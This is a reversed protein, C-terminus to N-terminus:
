GKVSISGNKANYIVGTLLMMLNLQFNFYGQTNDTTYTIFSYLILAFCVLVARSNIINYSLFRKPVVILWYWSWLIFGWFGIEIFMKMLDNHLAKISSMNYLDTVTIYDFQKTVFGVGRGFFLPSFSCFKRFYDYIINRGSMSIGYSTLLDTLEDSVSFAVFIVSVIVALLGTIKIIKKKTRVALHVTFILYIIVIALAAIGIRKFGLLFCVISLIMVFTNKKNNTFFLFCIIYLGLSFIVEHLEVYQNNIVHLAASGDPRFLAEIFLTGNRMLGIFMSSFFTILASIAGYKFVRDKFISVIAIGSICSGIGFLTNTIGRGIYPFPTSSILWIFISYFLIMMIPLLGLMTMQHRINAYTKNVKKTYCYLVFGLMVVFRGYYFFSWQVSGVTGYFVPYAGMFSFTLAFIALIENGYIPQREM